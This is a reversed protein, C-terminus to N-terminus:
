EFVSAKVASIRATAQKLAAMLGAVKTREADLVGIEASFRALFADKAEAFAEQAKYMNDFDTRTGCSGADIEAAREQKALRLVEDLADELTSDDFMTESDKSAENM